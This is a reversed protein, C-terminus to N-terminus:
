MVGPRLSKVGEAGLDLNSRVSSSFRVKPTVAFFLGIRGGFFFASGSESALISFNGNVDIQLIATMGAQM